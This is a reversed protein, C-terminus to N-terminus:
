RVSSSVRAITRSPKAESASSPLRTSNRMGSPVRVIGIGRINASNRSSSAPL